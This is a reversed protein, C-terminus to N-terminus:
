QQCNIHCLQGLGATSALRPYDNGRPCPSGAPCRAGSGDGAQRQTPRSRQELLVATGWSSREFPAPFGLCPKASAKRQPVNWKATINLTGNTHAKCINDSHFLQALGPSRTRGLLPRGSGQLHAADTSSNPPRHATLPAAPRHQHLRLQAPGQIPAVRGVSPTHAHFM